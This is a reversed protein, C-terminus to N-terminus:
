NQSYPPQPNTQFYFVGQFDGVDGGLTVQDNGDCEQNLYKEYSDCKVALFGNPNEIAETVFWNVIM